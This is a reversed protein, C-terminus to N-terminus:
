SQGVISNGTGRLYGWSVTCQGDSDAGEVLWWAGQPREKSCRFVDAVKMIALNPKRGAELYLLHNCGPKNLYLHMATRMNDRKVLTRHDLELFDTIPAAEWNTCVLNERALVSQSWPNWNDDFEPFAGGYYKYPRLQSEKLFRPDIKFRDKKSREVGVM